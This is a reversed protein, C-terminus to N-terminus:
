QFPRRGARSDEHSSGVLACARLRYSRQLNEVHAFRALKDALLCPRTDSASLGCPAKAAPPSPKPWNSPAPRLTRRTVKLTDRSPREETVFSLHEPSRAQVM